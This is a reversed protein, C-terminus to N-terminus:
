ESREIRYDDTVTYGNGNIILRLRLRDCKEFWRGQISGTLDEKVDIFCYRLTEPFRFLKGLEVDNSGPTYRGIDLSSATRLDFHLTELGNIESIEYPLKPVGTCEVVWLHSLSEVDALSRWVSSAGYLDCESITLSEISQVGQLDVSEFSCRDLSIWGVKTLGNPAPGISPLNKSGPAQPISLTKFSSGEIFLGEVVAVGNMNISDFSSEVLTLYSITHVNQLSLSKLHCSHLEVNLLRPMEQLDVSELWCGRLLFKRLEPMRKFILSRLVFSRMDFRYLNEVGDLDMSAFTGPNSASALGLASSSSANEDIDIALRRLARLQNLKKFDETGFLIQRSKLILVEINKHELIWNVDHATLDITNMEIWVLKEPNSFSLMVDGTSNAIELYEINKMFGARRKLVDLVDKTLTAFIAESTALAREKNPVDARISLQQLISIFRFFRELMETKEGYVCDILLGIWRFFYQAFTNETSISDDFGIVARGFYNVTSLRKMGHLFSLTPDLEFM